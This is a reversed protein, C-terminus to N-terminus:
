KEADARLCWPLKKKKKNLEALKLEMEARAIEAETMRSRAEQLERKRQEEVSELVSVKEQLEAIRKKAKDRSHDLKVVHRRLEETYERSTMTSVRRMTMLTELPFKLPGHEAPLIGHHPVLDTFFVSPLFYEREMDDDSFSVREPYVSGHRSLRQDAPWDRGYRSSRKGNTEPTSMGRTTRDATTVARQQGSGLGAAPQSTTRNRRQISGPMSTYRSLVGSGAESLPTSQPPTSVPSAVATSSSYSTRSSPRELDQRIPRWSLAKKGEGTVVRTSEQIESIRESEEEDYSLESMEEIPTLNFDDTDRPPSSIDRENFTRRLRNPSMTPVTLMTRLEEVDQLLADRQGTLDEVMEKLSQFEEVIFEYSPIATNSSCAYSVLLTDLRRVESALEDRQQTISTLKSRLASLETSTAAAAAAKSITSDFAGDRPLERSTVARTPSVVNERTTAKVDQLQTRLAQSETRHDELQRELESLRIHAATLEARMANVTAAKEDHATKLSRLTFGTSSLENVKAEHDASVEKLRKMLAEVDSELKLITAKSKELEGTRAHMSIEKQKLQYVQSQSSVLSAQAAELEQKVKLLELGLAEVDTAKKDHASSMERLQTKAEQHMSRAAAIEGMLGFVTEGHSSKLSEVEEVSDRLRTQHSASEEELATVKAKLEAVSSTASELSASLEGVRQRLSESTAELQSRGAKEMDLERALKAIQEQLNVKEVNQTGVADMTGSLQAELSEARLSKEEHAVTVSRLRKEVDAHSANLASLKNQAEQHSTKLEALEVTAAEALSRHIEVEDYKSTLLTRFNEIEAELVAVKNRLEESQAVAADHREQTEALTVSRMSVDEHAATVNRLKLQTEEYAAKMVALEATAAEALGRHTEVEQHKSNLLTRHSELHSELKNVKKKLEEAVAIAADHQERTETLAVSSMSVVEHAATLDRLSNQTEAHVTKLQALEATASAAVERLAEAEQHKNSLLTRHTQLDAELADVKEQLELSLAVAADHLARTESVSRLTTDEHAASLDQLKQEIDAHAANLTTLSRHADDHSTKLSALEVTATEAIGRHTELEQQKETLLKRHSALDTELVVIKKELEESLALAESSTAMETRLLDLSAELEFRVAKENELDEELNAIREQLTAKETTHANLADVAGSLQAELAESRLSKEEHAITLSRLRKEVDAHADTLRTLKSQAEGHSMKLDGLEAVASEALVRHTDVEENKFDLLTRHSHLEAELAAVKRRLEESHVVAADHQQQTEALVLGTDRLDVAAKTSTALEAELAAVREKLAEALNSASDRQERVEALQAEVGKIESAAAAIRDELGKKEDEAMKMEDLAATLQAELSEARLCKEEFATKLDALEDVTVHYHSRISAVEAHTHKLRKSEEAAVALQSALVEKELELAAVQTKLAASEAALLQLENQYDDAAQSLDAIKTRLDSREEEMKKLDVRMTAAETHKEEHRLELERARGEVEGHREKWENERARMEEMERECEAVRSRLISEEEEHRKEIEVAARAIEGAERAQDDLEDMHARLLELERSREMREGEREANVLEVLEELEGVRTRLQEREGELALLLTEHHRQVANLRSNLEAHTGAHSASLERLESTHREVMRAKEEVHGDVVRSLEDSRAAAAEHAGELEKIKRRLVEVEKALAEAKALAAEMETATHHRSATDLLQAKLDSINRIRARLNQVEVRLQAKEEDEGEEKVVDGISRASITPTTPGSGPLPDRTSLLEAELARKAQEVDAVKAETDTITAQLRKVEERLRTVEEADVLDRAISMSPSAVALTTADSQISLTGTNQEHTESFADKKAVKDANEVGIKVDAAVVGAGEELRRKRLERAMARCRERLSKNEERLKRGSDEEEELAKETEALSDRDAWGFRGMISAFGGGSSNRKSSSSYSSSAISPPRNPRLVDAELDDAPDDALLSALRAEAAEARAQLAVLTPDPSHLHVQPSGHPAGTSSATSARRAAVSPDSSHLHSQPSGHPAPTTAGHQSSISASDLNMLSSRRTPTAPMAVRPVPTPQSIDLPETPPEATSIALDRSTTNPEEDTAVEADVYSPRGESHLSDLRAKMADREAELEAVRRMSMTVEITLREVMDHGHPLSGALSEPPTSEEPIIDLPGVVPQAHPSGPTSIPPTVGHFAGAKASALAAAHEETLVGNHAELELSRFEAAEFAEKWRACEEELTSIRTLSEAGTNNALRAELDALMAERRVEEEKADHLSAELREVQSALADRKALQAELGAIYEDAGAYYEERQAVTRELEAARARADALEGTLGAVAERLDAAQAEGLEVAAEHRESTHRIAELQRLYDQAASTVERLDFRLRRILREQEEALAQHAPDAAMVGPPTLRDLARPLGTAPFRSARKKKAVPIRSSNGLTSDTELHSSAGTASSTVSETDSFIDPNESPVPSSTGLLKLTAESQIFALENALYDRHAQLRLNEEKREEVSRRLMQNEKLLLEAEASPKPFAQTTEIINGVAPPTPSMPEAQGAKLQKNEERLRHIVEKLHAVEDEGFMEKTLSTLNRVKHARNAYKLTNLTEPLDSETPSICAIMLTNSNGGLSDQLLRTLKSDRYPIHTTRGSDDGLASIVNGLALLGSNIYIGERQRAGVNGTRQMRESGALDVFHLRSHLNIVSDPAGNPSLRREQVLTLSFIAHSRSSSANMETASTQRHELGGLFLQLADDASRLRVTQSGTLRIAGSKDEQIVIPTRHGAHFPQPSTVLLDILDENYVELFTASLTTTTDVDARSALDNFIDKIARSIIGEASDDADGDKVVGDRSSGMTYTKGSGTQGYAMITVNFGELFRGVLARVSKEYVERQTDLGAFVRDYTFRKRGDVVVQRPGAAVAGPDPEPHDVDDAVPVVQVVERAGRTNSQRDRDSVPRIRLAVKVATTTPPTPAPM